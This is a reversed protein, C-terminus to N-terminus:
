LKQRLKLLRFHYALSQAVLITLPSKIGHKACHSLVWRPASAKDLAQLIELSNKNQEKAAALEKDIDGCKLKEM